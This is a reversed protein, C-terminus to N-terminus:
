QHYELLSPAKAADTAQMSGGWLELASSDSSLNDVCMGSECCERTFHLRLDGPVLHSNFSVQYVTESLNCWFPQQPKSWLYIKIGRFTLSNPDRQGKIHYKPDFSDGSAVEEIFTLKSASFYRQRALFDFLLENFIPHYPGLLPKSRVTYCSAECPPPLPGLHEVDLLKGPPFIEIM